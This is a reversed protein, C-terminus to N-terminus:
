CRFCHAPPLVSLLLIFVAAYAACLYSRCLCTAPLGPTRKPFTRRLYHNYYGAIKFLLVSIYVVNQGAKKIHRGGNDIECIPLHIIEFAAPCFPM